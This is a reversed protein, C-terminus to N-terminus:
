ADSTGPNQTLDTWYPRLFASIENGIYRIATDQRGAWGTIPSVPRQEVCNSCKVMANCSDAGVLRDRDSAVPPEGNAPPAVQNVSARTASTALAIAMAKRSAPRLVSNSIRSM